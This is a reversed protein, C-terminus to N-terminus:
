KSLRFNLNKVDFPPPPSLGTSSLVELMEVGLRPSREAGAGDEPRISLWLEGIGEMGVVMVVVGADEVGTLRALSSDLTKM